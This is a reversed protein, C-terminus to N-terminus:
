NKPAVASASAASSAANPTEPAAKAVVQAGDSIKQMGEVVIRDGEAVGTKVIVQGQSSPGVEVKHLAVKDDPGVVGLSYTGQVSILAKEPVVLVGNGAEQRRFRVRGYQGPRLLQDPNPFLGQVQITGTTPDVQRNYAIVVGRRAYTSGDSLVLEIGPDGGDATGASALGAFQKKAWALDRADLHKFRDPFKVYDVESMTFNVRIPDTSSVTTLLTPGDQGVLNGIRVLAIGAVGDLPSLIRTYSLNLEAQRLQAAAAQIQGESDALNATANDVDQQSIIGAKLVSQDRDLTIKAHAQNVKARTLAARATDVAAVYETAEITFLTQGAKVAAGDKYTQTQLYGRVRARIDANDYGDLTGISEVFLPVDKKVVTKVFVTPPPPAPPAKKVDCATASAIALVGAWIWTAKL